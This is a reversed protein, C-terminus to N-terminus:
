RSLIDFQAKRLDDKTTFPLSRLEDSRLASIAEDTLGALRERYFPSNARAYALVERLKGTQHSALAEADWTGAIFATFRDRLEKTLAATEPDYQTFVQAELVPNAMQQAPVSSGTLRRDSRRGGLRLDVAM